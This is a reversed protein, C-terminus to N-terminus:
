NQARRFGSISRFNDRILNHRHSDNNGYRHINVYVKEKPLHLRKTVASIIRNNAQHPILLNIDKTNVGAKRLAKRAADVMVRVAIRFLENGRMKIYHERDKLTDKSAPKASGGGPIILIDAQSGDSGLYSSLFSEKRSPTLVAAGAGDGFLVCTARDNWDTVASLIETGVVLVKKYLGSKIFQSATTLGYVFGACAASLDFCAANKAKIEHQIYCATSPFSTDPTITTTIILDVESPRIGARRLAIRSARAGFYSAGVGKDAIRREQIGTRTRIWEDSTDVM